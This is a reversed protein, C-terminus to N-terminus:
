HRENRKELLDKFHPRPLYVSDAELYPRWLDSFWCNCADKFLPAIEQHSFGALGTGVPTVYYWIQDEELGLVTMETHGVFRKINEKVADLSLSTRPDSKTPIAYSRSVYKGDKAMETFFGEGKGFKAGFYKAASKAAGAGHIGLLNSGFVFCGGRPIFYNEKSDYYAGNIPPKFLRREIPIDM